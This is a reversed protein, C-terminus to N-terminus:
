NLDNDKKRYEWFTDQHLFTEDVYDRIEKFHMDVADFVQKWQAQERQFGDNLTEKIESITIELSDLRSEIRKIEENM